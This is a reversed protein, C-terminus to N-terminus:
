APNHASMSRATPSRFYGGPKKLTLTGPTAARLALGWNSLWQLGDPPKATRPGARGLCGQSAGWIPFNNLAITGSTPGWKDKAFRSAVISRRASSGGEITSAGKDHRIHDPVQMAVEGPYGAARRHLPDLLEQDEGVTVADLPQTKVHAHAPRVVRCGLLEALLVVLDEFCELPKGVPEKPEGIDAALVGLGADRLDVATNAVPRHHPDLEPDGFMTTGGLEVRDDVPGGREPGHNELMGPDLGVAARIGALRARGVEDRQRLAM